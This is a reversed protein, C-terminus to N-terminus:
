PHVVTITFDVSGDLKGADYVRACLSGIASVQGTVTIGRSTNDNALVVQCVTGNWTGLSLGVIADEPAIDTLTATVAGAAQSSFNFSQGGNVTLSGSFTETVTPPPPGPDSPGTPADGSDCGAAALGAAAVLALLSHRISRQM